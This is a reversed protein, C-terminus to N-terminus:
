LADNNAMRKPAVTSRLNIRTKAKMKSVGSCRVTIM